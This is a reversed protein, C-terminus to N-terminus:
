QAPSVQLSNAGLRNRIKKELSDSIGSLEFVDGYLLKAGNRSKRNLGALNDIPPKGASAFHAIEEIQIELKGTKLLTVIARNHSHDARIVEALAKSREM